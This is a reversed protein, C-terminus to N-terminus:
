ALPIWHPRKGKGIMLNRACRLRESMTALRKRMLALLTITVALTRGIEAKLMVGLAENALGTEKKKRAAARAVSAFAAVEVYDEPSEAAALMAEGTQRLAAPDATTKALPTDHTM